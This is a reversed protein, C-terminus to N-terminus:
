KRLEFARLGSASRVYIRSGVVAPSTWTADDALRSRGLVQYKDPTASLVAFEGQENLSLLRSGALVPTSYYGHNGDIWVTKGDALAVCAFEGGDNMGYAHGDRVVLSSLYSRLLRNEWAVKVSWREGAREIALATLPKGDGSVLVHGDSVVPTCISEDYQIQFPHGWLKRGDAIALGVVEPGTMAVVQEQGAITAIVPSSYSVHEKLSKWVVKGNAAAFATLTGGRQGGVSCIVLDEVCAPSGTYGFLPVPAGEGKGLPVIVNETGNVYARGRPLPQRAGFEAPLHVHWVDAGNWVNLAQLWGAIGLTYVRSGRVLPTAKPGNGHRRGVEHPDFDVPNTRVWLRQGTDADFALAREVAGDRDTIFVRGDAVVPSSWGTGLKATWAPSPGHEPWADPLQTPGAVGQGGPGRWNPWSQGAQGHDDARGDAGHAPSAGCAAFVLACLALACSRAATSGTM